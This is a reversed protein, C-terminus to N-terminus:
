LAAFRKLKAVALGALEDTAAAIWFALVDLLLQEIYLTRLVAAVDRHALGLAAVEEVTAHVIWLAVESRVQLQDVLGARLAVAGIDELDDVVLSGVEDAWVVALRQRLAALLFTGRLLLGCSWGAGILLLDSPRSRRGNDLPGVRLLSPRDDLAYSLGLRVLSFPSSPLQPQHPVSESARRSAARPTGGSPVATGPRRNEAWSM